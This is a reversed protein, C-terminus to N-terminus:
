LRTGGSVDVIQGTVWRSQGSALFCVADAIDEPQGVRGFTSQKELFARTAPDAHVATEVLGPAVANVTIARPGFEGALILTMAELASKSATYAIHRVSPIRTAASSVSIIRGGPRLSSAAAQILFLPAKFNMAFMADIDRDTIAALAGTVGLGANNVLIDLGTDGLADTAATGFAQWLEDAGAKGTSLDARLAGARTGCREISAVTEAAAGEDRAYHVGVFRASGAALGLAIARGIGRSSGTVLAVKGVLSDGM